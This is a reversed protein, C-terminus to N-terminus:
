FMHSLIYLVLLAAMSEPVAMGSIGRGGNVSAQDSGCVQGNWCYGQTEPARHSPEFSSLSVDETTKQQSTYYQQSRNHKEETNNLCFPISWSSTFHICHLFHWFCRSISVELWQSSFQLHALNGTFFLNFCWRLFCAAFSVHLVAVCCTFWFLM